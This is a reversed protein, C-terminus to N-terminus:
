KKEDFIKKSKIGKKKNTYYNCSLLEVVPLEEIALLKKVVFLENLISFPILLLFFTSRL